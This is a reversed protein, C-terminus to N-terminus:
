FINKEYIFNQNTFPQNIFHWIRNKITFFILYIKHLSYILRSDNWKSCLNTELETIIM